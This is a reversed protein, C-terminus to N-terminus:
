RQRSVEGDYTRHWTREYGHDDVETAPRGPRGAWHARFSRTLTEWEVRDHETVRGIDLM